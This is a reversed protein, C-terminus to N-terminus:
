LHDLKALLETAMWTEVGVKPGIRSARGTEATVFIAGEAKTSAVILGDNTHGRRGPEPTTTLHNDFDDHLEDTGLRFFGLRAKGLIGIAVPVDVSLTRHIVLLEVRKDVDPTRALEELQLHTALVQVVDSECLEHLRAFTIRDDLLYDYVCSDLMLKLM